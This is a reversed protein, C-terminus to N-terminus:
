SKLYKRVARKAKDQWWEESKWRIQQAYFPELEREIDGYRALSRIFEIDKTELRFWEGHRERGMHTFFNHLAIEHSEPDCTLCNIRHFIKGQLQYARQTPNKTQGIKIYGPMNPSSLFYVCPQYGSGYGLDIMCKGAITEFDGKSGDPMVIHYNKSSRSVDLILAIMGSLRLTLLVILSYLWNTAKATTNINVVRGEKVEFTITYQGDPVEFEM